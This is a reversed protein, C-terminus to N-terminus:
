PKPNLTQLEPNLTWHQSIISSGRSGQTENRLGLRAKFQVTRPQGPRRFRGADNTSGRADTAFRNRTGSGKGDWGSGGEWVRVGEIREESEDKAVVERSQRQLM